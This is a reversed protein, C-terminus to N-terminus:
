QEDLWALGQRATVHDPAIRLVAEFSARAASRRGQQLQSWGLGARMEVDAPYLELLRAYLGEADAYRGLSYSAWAMRSLALYNSRDEKQVLRGTALVDLWLLLAAEPLMLGLLPEIARPHLKGAARYSEISDWHRGLLYLLWGRRLHYAYTSREPKPLADLEALAEVYEGKAEHAYSSRYREGVADAASALTPLLLLLALVLGGLRASM